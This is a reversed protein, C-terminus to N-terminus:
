GVGGASDAVLGAPTVSNARKPNAAPRPSDPGPRTWIGAKLALGVAAPDVCHGDRRHRDFARTSSFYCGCGRCLSRQSGFPLRIM